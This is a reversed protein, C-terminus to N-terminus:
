VGFARSPRTSTQPAKAARAEEDSGDSDERASGENPHSGSRNCLELAGRGTKAFSNLAEATETWSRAMSLKLARWQVPSSSSHADKGFPLGVYTKLLQHCAGEYSQKYNAVLDALTKFHLPKYQLTACRSIGLAGWM